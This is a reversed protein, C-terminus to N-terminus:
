TTPESGPEPNQTTGPLRRLYRIRATLLTERFSSTSNTKTDLQRWAATVGASSACATSSRPRVPVPRGSLSVALATAAPRPLKKCELGNRDGLHGRLSRGAHREVPRCPVICVADHWVGSLALNVDGDVARLTVIVRRRRNTGAGRARGDASTVFVRGHQNYRRENRAQGDPM